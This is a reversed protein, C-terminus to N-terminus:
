KLHDNCYRIKDELYEELSVLKKNENEDVTIVSGLIEKILKDLDFIQYDIMMQYYKQDHIDMFSRFKEGKILSYIIKSVSENSSQYENLSNNLDLIKEYLLANLNNRMTNDSIILPWRM